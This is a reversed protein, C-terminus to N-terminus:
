RERILLVNSVAREGEHDFLKNDSPCSIVGHKATWLTSSGGGDLNLADNLGLHFALLQLEKISMGSAKEPHRGDVVIFSISDGTLGICSRPHRTTAFSGQDDNLELEGDLVLLPGAALINPYADLFNKSYISDASYLRTQKENIAILGNIRSADLFTSDCISSHNIRLFTTAEGTQMNFFSGNIAASARCQLAQQSTPIRQHPQVIALDYDKRSFTLMVINQPSDFLQGHFRRLIIKGDIENRQWELSQIQRIDEGSQPFAITGGLCLALFLYLRHSKL